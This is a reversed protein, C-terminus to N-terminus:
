RSQMESEVSEKWDPSTSCKDWRVGSMDPESSLSKTANGRLLPCLCALNHKKRLRGLDTTAAVDKSIYTTFKAATIPRQGQDPKWTRPHNEQQLLRLFNETSVINLIGLALLSISLHSSLSPLSFKM